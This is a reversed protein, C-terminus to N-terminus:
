VPLSADRAWLHHAAYARYPRWREARALLARPTPRGTTEDAAARLLGVDSAPFADPEACARMAIYQATWEGVGRIARLRAMTQDIAGGRAFLREDALAARAVHRLTEVRAAPMGFHSLDAALVQAPDPFTWVLDAEPAVTDRGAGRAVLLANLQRARAVTVQQGIVSRAAVEFGDWGHFVRLGPRALVLPALWPDSALQAEIVEVEADLDFAFRAQGAVRRAISAPVNPITVLLAHQQRRYEVTAIAIQGDARVTRRYVNGDVAEVGRVARAALFQLMANWEFPARVPLAIEV